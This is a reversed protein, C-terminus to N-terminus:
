RVCYVAISTVILTSSIWYLFQSSKTMRNEMVVEMTVITAMKACLKRLQAVKAKSEMALIEDEKTDVDVEETAHKTAEQLWETVAQEAAVVAEAAYLVLSKDVKKTVDLTSLVDNLAKNALAMSQMSKTKLLKGKPISFDSM